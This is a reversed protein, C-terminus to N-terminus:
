EVHGIPKGCSRSYKVHGKVKRCSKLPVSWMVVVVVVVVVVVMVLVVVVVVVFIFKAIRKYFLQLMNKKRFDPFM